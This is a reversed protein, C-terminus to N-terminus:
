GAPLTSVEVPLAFFAGYAALVFRTREPSFVTNHVTAFGVEEAAIRMQALTDPDGAALAAADLRPIM